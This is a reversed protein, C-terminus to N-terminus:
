TLADKIADRVMERLAARLDEKLTRTHEVDIFQGPNQPDPESTTWTRVIDGTPDDILIPPNVVYIPNVGEPTVNNGNSIRNVRIRIRLVDRAAYYDLDTITIRFAGRDVSQGIMDELIGLAQAKIRRRLIPDPEAEVLDTIPHTV